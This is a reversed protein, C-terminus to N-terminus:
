CLEYDVDNLVWGFHAVISKIDWDSPKKFYFITGVQVCMCTYKNQKKM